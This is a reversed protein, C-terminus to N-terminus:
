IGFLEDVARQDPTREPAMSKSMLMLATDDGVDTFGTRNFVMEGHLPGVPSLRTAALTDKIGGLLDGLAELMPRQVGAPEILGTELEHYRVRIQERADASAFGLRDALQTILSPRELGNAHRADTLIAPWSRPDFAPTMAITEVDVQTPLAPGQLMLALEIMDLLEARDDGAQDILADVDASRGDSFAALADALLNGLQIEREDMM